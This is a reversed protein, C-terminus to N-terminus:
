GRLRVLPLCHPEKKLDVEINGARQKTKRALAEDVQVSYNLLVGGQLDLGLVMKQSFIKTYWEPLAGNGSEDANTAMFTPLLM